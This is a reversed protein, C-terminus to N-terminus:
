VFRSAIAILKTYDAGKSHTKEKMKTRLIHPIPVQIRTGLPTGNDDILVLNNTDFKPVKPAQQQKLGVLIGKKKEGRIAVLIRDGIYGVGIKNYVHICRPPRGEMMAKKGIESNDVVRLRSLKIIQSAPTSTSINRSAVNLMAFPSLM